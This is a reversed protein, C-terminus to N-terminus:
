YWNNYSKWCSDNCHGPDRTGTYYNWYYKNFTERDETINKSLTIWSRLEMNELGYESRANYLHIVEPYEDDSSVSTNFIFQDYNFITLDDEVSFVRFGSYHNNEVTSGTIWGFGSQERNILFSDMHTHGWFQYRIKNGYKIVLDDLGVSYDKWSETTNGYIHGILWVTGNFKNIEEELWTWQDVINLEKKVVFNYNDYYLTNLSILKVTPSLLASYYLGNTINYQTGFLDNFVSYVYTNYPPVPLQDVPYTDHNGISFYIMIEPYYSRLTRTVNKIADKNEDWSQSLDHHGPFDGTLIIFLPNPYMEKMKSFSYNLMTFPLDCNMDGWKSASRYPKKPISDKHCCHTGLYDGIECNAPSGPEYKLDLHIDTLHFFYQASTLLPLFLYILKM